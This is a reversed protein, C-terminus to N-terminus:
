HLRRAPNGVWTEGAPVDRLVVAGIGLIAKEGITINEITCARPGIWVGDEIVVGAGIEACAAICVRQGIQAGHGIHVLNDIKTRAAIRTMGLAARDVCTNAQIEVDDGLLVGGVHPFYELDMGRRVFGFGRSGIVAGPGVIVHRGMKVCGHVDATVHVDCNNPEEFPHYPMMPEIYRELAVAMVLRPDDVVLYTNEIPWHEPAYSALRDFIVTAGVLNAPITYPVRLWTLAGEGAEDLPAAHTIERSPDGVCNDIHLSRGLDVARLM